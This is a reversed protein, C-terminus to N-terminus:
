KCQDNMCVIISASLGSPGVAKLFWKVYPGPMGGLASFCLSTDDVMVAGDVHKAAELCKATSIEDPEGQFEPLDIDRSVIQVCLCM